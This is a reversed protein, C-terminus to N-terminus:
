LKTTSKTFYSVLVKQRFQYEMLAILMCCTLKVLIHEYMFINYYYHMTVTFSRQCTVGFVIYSVLPRQPVQSRLTCPQGNHPTYSQVHVTFGPSGRYSPIIYAYWRLCVHNVLANCAPMKHNSSNVIRILMLEISSDIHM